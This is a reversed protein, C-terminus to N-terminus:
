VYYTICHYHVRSMDISRVLLRYQRYEVGLSGITNNYGPFGPVPLLVNDGPGALAAIALEIGGICGTVIAVGQFYHSSGPRSFNVGQM